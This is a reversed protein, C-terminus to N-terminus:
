NMKITLNMIEQVCQIQTVLPFRLEDQLIFTTM